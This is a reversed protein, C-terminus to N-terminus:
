FYFAICKFEINKGHFLCIESSIKSFLAAAKHCFKKLHWFLIFNKNKFNYNSIPMM